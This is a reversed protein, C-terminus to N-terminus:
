HAVFVCMASGLFWPVVSALRQPIKLPPLRGRPPPLLLPAKCTTLEVCLLLCSLLCCLAASGEQKPSGGEVGMPGQPSRPNAPPRASLWIEELTCDAPQRRADSCPPSVAEAAIGHLEIQELELADM